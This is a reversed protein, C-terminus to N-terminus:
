KTKQDVKKLEVIPAFRFRVEPMYHRVIKVLHEPNDTEVLQFGEPGDVMSYNKSIFKANEEPNNKVEERFQKLKDMVTNHDASDYEWFMIYEM